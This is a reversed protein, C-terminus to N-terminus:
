VSTTLWRDVDYRGFGCRDGVVDVYLDAEQSALWRRASISGTRVDRVAQILVAAALALLPDIYQQRKKKRPM